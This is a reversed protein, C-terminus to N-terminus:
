VPKKKAFKDGEIIKVKAGPKIGMPNKTSHDAYWVSVDATVLRFYQRIGGAKLPLSEHPTLDTMWLLENAKLEVGDGLTGRLPELDGLEGIVEPDKVQANWVRTSNAVNSAMYIGGVYEGLALHHDYYGRGWALTLASAGPGWEAGSMLEVSGPSETHLGRRRQSEGDKTVVSEQITLYGIQGWEHRRVPCAIIMEHYHRVQEPLSDENGLVIPMMNINIGTPKPFEVEGAISAYVGDTKIKSAWWKRLEGVILRLVLDNTCLKSLPSEDDYTGILITRIVPNLPCRTKKCPVAEAIEIKELEKNVVFEKGTYADLLPGEPTKLRSRLTSYEGVMSMSSRREKLTRADLVLQHLPHNMSWPYRGRASRELMANLNVNPNIVSGDRSLLILRPLCPSGSILSPVGTYFKDAKAPSMLNMEIKSTLELCYVDVVFELFVSFPSGVKLDAPSSKSLLIYAWTKKQYDMEKQMAVIWSKFHNYAYKHFYKQMQDSNDQVLVMIDYKKMADMTPITSWDGVKYHPPLGEGALDKHFPVRTAQLQYLSPGLLKRLVKNADPQTSADDVKAADAM